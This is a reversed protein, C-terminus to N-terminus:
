FLTAQEPKDVIYDLNEALRDLFEDQGRRIKNFAQGLEYWEARDVEPFEQQQASKPPWEMTFTNSKITATDLDGEVAWGYVLKGSAQKITGLELLKGDPLTHGTEELFERKAADIPTEGEDIWGKPISWVGKDKKAWFPGGPHGLLVEIKDGRRRYLMVGASQKPM